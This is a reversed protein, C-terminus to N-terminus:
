LAARSVMSQFLSKRDLLQGKLVVEGFTEDVLRRRGEMVHVHIGREQPRQATWVVAPTSAWISYDCGAYSDLDLRRDPKEFGAHKMLRDHLPKLPTSVIPTRSWTSDRGCSTCLHKRHPVRAFRGLDLHPEGCHNCNICALPRNSEVAQMFEFAAIPPVSVRAHGPRGFLALEPDCQITVEVFDDDVLKFGGIVKRAHVHIKPPRTSITQTSIAEPLSCWVGVEVYEAPDIDFRHGALTTVRGSQACTRVGTKQYAEHDAKTGWSTQHEKCWWRSSGNRFKGSPALSCSAPAVTAGGAGMGPLEPADGM